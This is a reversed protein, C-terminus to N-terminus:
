RSPSHSSSVGDPEENWWGGGLAQLLAATDAYRDSQAQIRDARVRLQERQADLLALQSVGGVQYQRATIDYAAQAQREALARAQLADADTQLARLADAVEQFGRLVTD